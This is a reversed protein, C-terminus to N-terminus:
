FPVEAIDRLGDIRKHVLVCRRQLIFLGGNVAIKQVRQVMQLLPNDHSFKLVFFNSGGHSIGIFEFAQGFHDTKFFQRRM